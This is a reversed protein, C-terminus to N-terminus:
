KSKNDQIRKEKRMKHWNSLFDTKTYIILIVVAFMSFSIINLIGHNDPMLGYVVKILGTLLIIGTVLWMNKKKNDM